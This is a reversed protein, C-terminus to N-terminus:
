RGALQRPHCADIDARTSVPTPLKQMLYVPDLAPRAGSTPSGPSFRFVARPFGFGDALILQVGDQLPPPVSHETRRDLGKGRFADGSRCVEAYQLATVWLSGLLWRQM